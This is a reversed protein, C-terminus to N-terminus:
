GPLYKYYLYWNGEIHRYTLMFNNGNPRCGDLSPLLPAPPKKEYVYGKDTDSSIASGHGWYYFEVSDTDSGLGGVVGVVSLLERYQNIRSQGVGVSLPDSPNTWNNAVRTLSKDAQAMRALKDFAAQHQRFNALMQQDAPPDEHHDAAHFMWTALAPVCVALGLLLAAKKRRSPAGLENRWSYDLVRLALIVGAVAGAALGVPLTIVCFMAAGFDDDGALKAAVLIGSILGIILGVVAGLIGVFTKM